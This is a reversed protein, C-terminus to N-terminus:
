GGGWLFEQATKRASEVVRGRRRGGGGGGWSLAIAVASAFDYGDTAFREGVTGGPLYEMVLLCLEEHELYDFVRVVHPHDIAALVRAEAVFRRRVQEDHVFQAPIQKIAVPRRLRRHTGALVVGCGGRGLEAGIDYAPLAERLRDGQETM